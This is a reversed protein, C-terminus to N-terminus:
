HTYTCVLVDNFSRPLRIDAAKRQRVVDSAEREGSGAEQVRERELVFFFRNAKQSLLISNFFHM